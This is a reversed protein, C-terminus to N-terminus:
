EDDDEEDEDSEEEANQLWEVFQKMQDVFVGKGKTNNSPHNWRLIIEESLIEAKYFMLVIKQFCKHFAMNDYCYEQVKNILNLESVPSTSFASILPLYDKIHRIAQDAALDDKKSWEVSKMLVSWIMTITESEELGLKKKEEQATQVIEDVPEEDKIMEILKEKMVKRSEHGAKSRQFEVIKDLGASKFHNEFNALTRKNIPLLNLLKTELGAKKLGSGLSSIEGEKEDLWSKFLVGAFDISLGAKVLHDEFLSNLCAPSALNNALIIGTVKALKHREDETFGKLFNMLKRLEDELPKELYKYRRILKFLVEYHAKLSAHDADASFVSVQAKFSGGTECVNVIEGGSALLGGAFLVDLLEEAYRRYNLKAGATDLFKSVETLDGNAEEVGQIIADRFANPDVKEKEDRKRTRIRQGTLVPLQNKSTM